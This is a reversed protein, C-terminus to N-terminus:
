GKRFRRSLGLLCMLGSGLLWIAGPEPVPHHYQSFITQSVKAYQTTTLPDNIFMGLDKNYRTGIDFEINFTTGGNEGGLFDM